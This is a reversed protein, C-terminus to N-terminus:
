NSSIDEIATLDKKLGMTWLQFWECLAEFNLKKYVLFTIPYRVLDFFFEFILNHERILYGRNRYQYYRKKYDPPYNVSFLRTRNVEYESESSPHFFDASTVLAMRFQKKCRYYYDLEDGRMFLEKKPFGISKIVSCDILVGNYFQVKGLRIEKEKIWDVSDIKRVGFFFNNATKRPNDISISIPSVIELKHELSASLLSELCDKSPIGDDDLLWIKSAGLSIAYNMGLEFGGASGFDTGGILYECLFESAIDRTSELNANDVVIVWNSNHSQASIGKLARRLLHDRNFAVIVTAIM